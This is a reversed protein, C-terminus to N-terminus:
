QGADNIGTAISAARGPAPVPGFNGLDRMVGNSWLFAHNEIQGTRGLTGSQGVVQRSRNIAWAVSGTSSGPLAGLDVAVYGAAVGTAAATVAAVPSEPSDPASPSESCALAGAAATLLTPIRLSPM